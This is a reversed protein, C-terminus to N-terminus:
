SAEFPSNRVGHDSETEYQRRGCEDIAIGGKILSKVADGDNAGRSEKEDPERRFIRGRAPTKFRDIEDYKAAAQEDKDGEHHPLIERFEEGRGQGQQLRESKGDKETSQAKNGRM